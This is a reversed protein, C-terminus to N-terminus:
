ENSDSLMRRQGTDALVKALNALVRSAALCDPKTHTPKVIPAVPELTIRRKSPIYM